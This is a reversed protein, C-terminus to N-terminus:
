LLRADGSVGGLGSLEYRGAVRFLRCLDLREKLFIGELVSIDIILLISALIRPRDPFLPPYVDRAFHLGLTTLYPRISSSYISPSSTKFLEFIGTGLHREGIEKM